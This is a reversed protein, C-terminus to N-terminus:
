STGTTGENIKAEWKQEWEALQRQMDYKDNQCKRLQEEMGDLKKQMLDQRKRLSENDGSLTGMHTQLANLTQEHYDVKAKKVADGRTLLAALGVLLAGVSGIATGILAIDSLQAGLLLYIPVIM